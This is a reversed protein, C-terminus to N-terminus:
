EMEKIKKELDEVRDRLKKSGQRYGLFALLLALPGGTGVIGMANKTVGDWAKKPWAKDAVKVNRTISAALITFKEGNLSTEGFVKFTLPQEDGIEEPSITWTWVAPQGPAIPRRADKEGPDIKFKGPSLEASMVPYLRIKDTFTLRRDDHTRAEISIVGTAYPLLAGTGTLPQRSTIQITVINPEELVM